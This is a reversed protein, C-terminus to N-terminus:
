SRVSELERLVELFLKKVKLKTLKESNIEEVAESELRNFNAIQSANVGSSKGINRMAEFGEEVANVAKSSIKDFASDVESFTRKISNECGDLKSKQSKVVGLVRVKDFMKNAILAVQMLREVELETLKKSDTSHVAGSFNKYRFFFSGRNMSTENVHLNDIITSLRSPIKGAACVEFTRSPSYIKLVSSMSMEGLTEHLLLALDEFTEGNFLEVAFNAIVKLLDNERSQGEVESRLENIVSELSEAHEEGLTVKEAGGKEEALSEIELTKHKLNDVEQELVTICHEADRLNNRLSEILTINRSKEAEGVNEDSSLEEIMGKLKDELESISRKQKEIVKRLRNIEKENEAQIIESLDSLEKASTKAFESSSELSDAEKISHVKQELEYLSDKINEVGEKIHKNNEECTQLHKEEIRSGRLDETINDFNQAVNEVGQIATAGKKSFDSNLKVLSDLKVYDKDSFRILIKNLKKDYETIKKENSNQDCVTYFRDLCDLIKKKDSISGSSGVLSKILEIKKKINVLPGSGIYTSAIKLLALIKANLLNWYELSDVKRDICKAEITLYASRFKIVQENLQPIYSFKHPHATKYAQSNLHKQILSPIKKTLSRNRLKDILKLNIFFLNALLSVILIVVLFSLLGGSPGLELLSEM